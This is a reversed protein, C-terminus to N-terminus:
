LWCGGVGIRPSCGGVGTDTVLPDDQQPVNQGQTKGFMARLFATMQVPLAGDLSELLTPTTTVRTNTNVQWGGPGCGGVGIRPGCGGVGATAPASFMVAVAAVAMLIALKKGM